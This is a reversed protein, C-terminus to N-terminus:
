DRGPPPAARVLRHYRAVAGARSPARLKRLLNAVHFKVTAESIVLESAIEHNSAGGVLLRLVELERRTLLEAFVRTDDAGAGAAALGDIAGPPGPAPARDPALSIGVDGLELARDGLWQLLSRLSERQRRLVRRLLASEHLEGLGRAFAWVVDADLVDLPASRPRVSAHLAGFPEGGALLPAVVYGDAGLADLIARHARSRGGSAAAVTTARRRRLVEVEILPLELRLPRASLAALATAAAAPDERFHAARGVLYGNHVTSLLVRDLRSHRCLLAPARDLIAEPSTIERMQELALQAQTLAAFRQEYRERLGALEDRHAQGDALWAGGPSVQALSRELAAIVDAVRERLCASQHGGCALLEGEGDGAPVQGLLEAAETLAERLAARLQREAAHPHADNLSV